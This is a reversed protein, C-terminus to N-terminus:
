LHEALFTLTRGHALASARQNYSARDTCNFGHEAGPYVHFAANDRGAFAAKVQEVADLPIGHDNEAYHFLIPQTVKGALDLANQIGGGYYAVAADLKGTAAARYALQGGFCYGIAAVKGAVEARARLADAAAGVDAVALGIDTKRMLEIGKDRDAGEYTLEVRPQTRWFVDPALAVYGDAAYQDAVARIHANVGFIEQIIIVAPGKGRRPLALYGGFSDNGTPIDIWQATM